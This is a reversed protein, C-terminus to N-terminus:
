SRTCALAKPESSANRTKGESWNSSTSRPIAAVPALALSNATSTRSRGDSRETKSSRNVTGTGADHTWALITPCSRAKRQRFGFLHCTNPAGLSTRLNLQAPRYPGQTTAVSNAGAQWASRVQGKGCRFYRDEDVTAEPVTTWIMVSRRLRICFEPLRFNLTVDRTILADVLFEASSTPSDNTHPFM